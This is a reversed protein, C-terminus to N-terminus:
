WMKLLNMGGKIDALYKEGNFMFINVFITQRGMSIAFRPTEESTFKIPKTTFIVYPNPTKTDEDSKSLKVGTQLDLLLKRGKAGRVVVKAMFDHKDAGLIMNGSDKNKRLSKALDGFPSKILQFYTPLHAYGSILKRNKGTFHLTTIYKRIIPALLNGNDQRMKYIFVDLEKTNGTQPSGGISILVGDGDKITNDSVASFKGKFPRGDINLEYNNGFTNVASVFSNTNRKGTKFEIVDNAVYIEKGKASIKIAPIRDVAGNIKVYAAQTVNVYKYPNGDKKAYGLENIISKFDTDKNKTFVIQVNEKPEYLIM